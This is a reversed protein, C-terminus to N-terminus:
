PDRRLRCSVPLEALEATFVLTAPGTMSLAADAAPWELELEGGPLECRVKRACRDTLVGAVLAASAGTGCALTEGSGREWVRMRLHGRTLVEVFEINAREPFSAHRELRPGMGLVLADEPPADVFVVFHPNGMSVGTGRFSGGAVEVCREVAAGEGDMPVEACLWRPLGMDVRAGTVVGGASFCLEVRRPGGDTEVIFSPASVYGLDYGLKALCRVGNGCMESRSGDANFMVMRLQGGARPPAVIILGDSGVGFSRNAL